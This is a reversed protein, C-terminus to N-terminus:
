SAACTASVTRWAEVTTVFRKWERDKGERLCWSALKGAVQLFTDAEVEFAQRVAEYEVLMEEYIWERPVRTSGSARYADRVNDAAALVEQAFDRVGDFQALLMKPVFDKFYAEAEKLVRYRLQGVISGRAYHEPDEPIWLTKTLLEPASAIVQQCEMEGFAAVFHAASSVLDRLEREGVFSEREVIAQRDANLLVLAAKLRLNLFGGDDADFEFEM